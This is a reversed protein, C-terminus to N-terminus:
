RTDRLVRGRENMHYRVSEWEVSKQTFLEGEWNQLEHRKWVTKSITRSTDLQSLAKDLNEDSVHYAFVVHSVHKGLLLKVFEQRASPKIVHHAEDIVLIDWDADAFLSSVEPRKAFELTAVFVGREPWIDADVPAVAEFERVPHKDVGDVADIYGGSSGFLASCPSFAFM